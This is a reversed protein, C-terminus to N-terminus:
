NDVSKALKGNQNGTEAANVTKASKEALWAKYQKMYAYTPHPFSAGSGEVVICDELFQTPMDIPCSANAGGAAMATSASIFLITCPIRKM